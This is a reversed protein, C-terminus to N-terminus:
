PVWCLLHKRGCRLVSVDMKRFVTKKFKSNLVTSTTWFRLLETNYVM